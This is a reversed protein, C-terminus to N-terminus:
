NTPNIDDGTGERGDPGASLLDFGDANGTSDPSRYIYKNQWPDLPVASTDLVKHWNPLNGPNTIMAGLGEATTPYRGNDVEFMKLSTKINSIEGTAAKIKSDNIRGTFKPVVIAALIAIIVMVLLLEILTFASRMSNVQRANRLNSTRM